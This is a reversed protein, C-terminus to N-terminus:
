PVPQKASSLVPSVGTADFLRSRVEPSMGIGTDQVHFTICSVHPSGRPDLRAEPKMEERQVRLTITALQSDM